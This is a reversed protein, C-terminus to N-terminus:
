NAVVVCQNLVYLENDEKRAYNQLKKNLVSVYVLVENFKTAKQEFIIARIEDNKPFKEL